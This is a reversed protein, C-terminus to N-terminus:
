RKLLARGLQPDRETFPGPSTDRTLCRAYMELKADLDDAHHLILVEPILPLRPSGWEPLTLYSTLIHELLQLVQPDIDGQIRAADRVMDRAILIHGFMRGPVTQVPQPDETLEEVRGIEHLIAGALILDRDLPPNLDTYTERYRDALFLCNRTVSLTHELWGGPFPHYHKLSARMSKLRVAHADLLGLTLRQLPEGDIKAMAITRLEAFMEEADFRSRELYDAERFGEDYDGPAVSRIKHIDIQPGYKEHVTYTARIKFFREPEWELQAPNWHDGDSWIMSSVARRGDRFRCSFFPKGDRTTGPTKSALQAYFDAIQGSQLQHLPVAVPRINTKERAM